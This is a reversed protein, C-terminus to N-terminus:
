QQQQPSPPYRGAPSVELKEMLCAFCWFAEAEDRMVCLLPAALDSMGQAHSLALTFLSLERVCAPTCALVPRYALYDPKDARQYNALETRMQVSDWSLVLSNSCM